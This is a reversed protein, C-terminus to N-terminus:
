AEYVEHHPRGTLIQEKGWNTVSRFAESGIFADFAKRDSWLSMILYRQPNNVDRFMHSATHGEIGGMAVVVKNFATEFTEEKGELVEYNMGITVM